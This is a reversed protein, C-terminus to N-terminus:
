RRVMMKEAIYATGDSLTYIYLGDELNNADFNLTNYGVNLPVTKQYRAKGAMDFVTFQFDGAVLSTMEIKTTTVVPNPTNGLSISQSLYANRSQQDEINLKVFYGYLFVLLVAAVAVTALITLFEKKLEERREERWPLLNIQAM